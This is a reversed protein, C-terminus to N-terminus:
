KNMWEEMWGVINIAKRYYIGQATSLVQSPSSLLLFRARGESLKDTPSKVSDM